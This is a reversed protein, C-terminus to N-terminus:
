YNDINKSKRRPIKEFNEDEYEAVIDAYKEAIEDIEDKVENEVTDSITDNNIVEDKPEEFDEETLGYAELIKDTAKKVSSKQTKPVPIFNSNAEFEKEKSEEEIVKVEIKDGTNRKTQQDNFDQLPLKNTCEELVTNGRVLRVNLVNSVYENKQNNFVSNNDVIVENITNNGRKLRIIM